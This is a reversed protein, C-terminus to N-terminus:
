GSAGPSRSSKSRAGYRANETSKPVGCRRSRTRRKEPLLLRFSLASVTAFAISRYATSERTSVGAVTRPISGFRHDYPHVHPPTRNRPTPSAAVVRNLVIVEVGGCNYRPSSFYLMPMLAMNNSIPRTAREVNRRIQLRVVLRPALRADRVHHRQTQRRRRPAGRHVPPRRARREVVVFFRPPQVFLLRARTSSSSDPPVIDILHVAVLHAVAINPLRVGLRSTGAGRIGVAASRREGSPTTRLRRIRGIPPDPAHTRALGCGPARVRDDM